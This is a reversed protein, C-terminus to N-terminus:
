QSGNKSVLTPDSYSRLQLPSWVSDTIGPCLGLYEPLGRNRTGKAVLSCSSGWIEDESNSYGWTFLFKQCLDKLYLLWPPVSLRGTATHDPAMPPERFHRAEWPGGLETDWMGGRKWVGTRAKKASLYAKEIVTVPTVFLEHFYVTPSNMWGAPISPSCAVHFATDHSSPILLFSLTGTRLPSIKWNFLSM